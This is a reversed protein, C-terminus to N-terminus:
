ELFGDFDNGDDVFDINATEVKCNVKENIVGDDVIAEDIAAEVTVAVVAIDINKVADKDMIIEDDGKDNIVIVVAVISAFCFAGVFADDGDVIARDRVLPGTYCRVPPHEIGDGRSM